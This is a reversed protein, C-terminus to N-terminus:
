KLDKEITHLLTISPATNVEFYKSINILLSKLQDFQDFDNKKYQM